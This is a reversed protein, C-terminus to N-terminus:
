KLKFIVPMSIWVGIPKDQQMAPDFRYNCASKVAASDCDPTVDSNLVLIKKPIGDKGVFMQLYVKGEIGAALAIKPYEPPPSYKIEPYKECPIFASPPPIVNPDQEGFKEFLISDPPIIANDIEEPNDTEVPIKPKQIQKPIVPNIIPDEPELTIPEEVEKPIYPHAAYQPFLNFLVIFMIIAFLISGRMYVGSYKKLDLIRIYDRM